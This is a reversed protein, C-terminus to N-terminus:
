YRTLVEILNEFIYIFMCGTMSHLSVFTSKENKRLKSVHVDLYITLPM